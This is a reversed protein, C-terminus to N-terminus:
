EENELLSKKTRMYKRPIVNAFRNKDEAGV